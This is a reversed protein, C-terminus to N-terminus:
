FVICRPAVITATKMVEWVPFLLLLVGTIVKKTVGWFFFLLPHWVNIVKQTVVWSFLLEVITVM